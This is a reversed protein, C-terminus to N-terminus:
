FPSIANFFKSLWGERSARGVSGNGAYEVRADAVQTSAIRNEPDIDGLRVIGSFQVWEQGQSLLLRKEGRVLATGNARVEAITVGVEGALSSTQSANGQGNFSSGGSANLANPNLFSLPGATPPTVSFSGSKQTKAGATKATTINEVLVVTLPDGVARARRGEALGAYGASVNFISGTAPMPQAAPAPMAPVTPEFGKKPKAAAAPDIGFHVAAAVISGAVLARLASRRRQPGLASQHPAPRAIIHHHFPTDM